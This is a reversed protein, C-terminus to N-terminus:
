AQEATLPIGDYGGNDNQPLAPRMKEKWLIAEHHMMSLPLFDHGLDKVQEEPQLFALATSEMVKKEYLFFEKAPGKPMDEIDQELEERVDLAGRAPGQQEEEQTSPLDPMETIPPLQVHLHTEAQSILELVTWLNDVEENAIQARERQFDRKQVVVRQCQFQRSLTLIIKTYDFSKVEEYAEEKTPEELQMLPIQREAEATRPKATDAKEKEQDAKDKLQDEKKDQPQSSSPVEAPEISQQQQQPSTSAPPSRPSDLMRPSPPTRPTSIPPFPTLPSSPPAPPITMLSSPLPDAQIHEMEEEDEQRPRKPSGQSPELIPGEAKRSLAEKIKEQTLQATEREEEQPGEARRTVEGFCRGKAVWPLAKEEGAEIGSEYRKSKARTEWGPRLGIGEVEKEEAEECGRVRM